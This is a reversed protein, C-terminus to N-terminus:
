LTSFVEVVSNRIRIKRPFSPLPPPLDELLDGVLPIWELVIFCVRVMQWLRGPTGVIIPPRLTSLLRAQKVPASGGVLTVSQKKMIAKNSNTTPLLKDCESSIQTALERTPTVVLARVVSRQQQPPQQLLSQMIPLLFALTKGSGTPAAGVLNRRGLITASLTAAQIPTPQDFGLRLLSRCLIPDLVAGGSAHSWSLQLQRWGDEDKDEHKTHKDEQTDNNEEKESLLSSSSEQIPLTLPAHSSEKPAPRKKSNKSPVPIVADEKTRDVNPEKTKKSKKKKSTATATAAPAEELKPTHDQHEASPKLLVIRKQITNNNNSSSTTTKDHDQQLIVQYQDGRLVQISGGYMMGIEEGPQAPLDMTAQKGLQENDYHNRKANKTKKKTKSNNDQGDTDMEVDGEGEGLTVPIDEWGVAATVPATTASTKSADSRKRKHSGRKSSTSPSM